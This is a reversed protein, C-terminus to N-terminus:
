RNLWFISAQLVTAITVWLLYPTFALSVWKASPWIAYMAWVITVLVLVIDLLSLLQNRLGFQIPTFIINAVLNIWFPLAVLTSIHGQRWRIFVYINVAFIIPYLVSWVVGFVNENPAWGPKHLAHYWSVTDQQAM